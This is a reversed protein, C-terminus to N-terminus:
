LKGERLVTWGLWLRSGEECTIWLRGCYYNIVAALYEAYKIIIINLHGFVFCVQDPYAIHFQSNSNPFWWDFVASCVSAGSAVSQVPVVVGSYLMQGSARKLHLCCCCVMEVPAIVFATKQLDDHTQKM